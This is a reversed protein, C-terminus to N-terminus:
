TTLELFAKLIDHGHESAISEPHFQVGYVRRDSLRVAMVEDTASLATVTLAPTVHTAVLSHYRGVQLPSPLGHFLGTGQHEITRQKGHVPEQATGVQGGLIEVLAQHGLCVGLVPIRHLFHRLVEKSIGSQSPDGPGPSIVLHTPGWSVAQSLPFADNRWVEVTAGLGEFAHALNHTFSDHNDVILVRARGDDGTM